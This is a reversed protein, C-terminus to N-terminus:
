VVAGYDNRDDVYRARRFQSGLWKGRRIPAHLGGARGPRKGLGAGGPLGRFGSASGARLNYAKVAHELATLYGALPTGRLTTLGPLPVVEVKTDVPWVLVAYGPGGSSSPQDGPEDPPVLYVVADLQAGITTM